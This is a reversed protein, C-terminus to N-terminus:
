SMRCVGAYFHSAPGRTGVEVEIMKTLVRHIRVPIGALQDAGDKRM